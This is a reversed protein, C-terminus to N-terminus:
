RVRRPLDPLRRAENDLAQYYDHVAQRQRIQRGADFAMNGQQRSVVRKDRCDHVGPWGASRAIRPWNGRKGPFPPPCQTCPTRAFLAATAPLDKRNRSQMKEVLKEGASARVLQSERAALLLLFDSHIATRVSRVQKRSYRRRECCASM